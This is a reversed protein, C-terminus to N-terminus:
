SVTAERGPRPADDQALTASLAAAEAFPLLRRAEELPAWRLGPPAAGEAGPAAYVVVHGDAADFASVPILPAAAAGDLMGLLSAPDGAPGFRTAAPLAAGQPTERLLAEGRRAVVAALRVAGVDVFRGRRWGLAPREARGFAAVRGFLVVHDGGDAVSHPTCDFWAAAGELVPAGTAERRARVGAFKDAGRRAFQMALAQQDAALVSVAFGPGETLAARSAAERAVCVLVLPPDMSVSTFSNATLGVASGDPQLGTVVTVGTPFAGLADRFARADIPRHEM